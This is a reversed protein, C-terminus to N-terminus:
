TRSSASQMFLTREPRRLMFGVAAEAIGQQHDAVASGADDLRDLRARLALAAQEVAYAVQRGLDGARLGPGLEALLGTGGVLRRGPGDGAIETGIPDPLPLALEGARHGTELIVELRANRMQRHRHPM